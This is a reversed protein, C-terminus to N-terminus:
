YVLGTSTKTCFPVVFPLIVLGWGNLAVLARWDNHCGFVDGGFELVGRPSLVARTSAM